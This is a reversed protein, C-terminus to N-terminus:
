TGTCRLGRGNGLFAAIESKIGSHLYLVESKLAFVVAKGKGGFTDILYRM